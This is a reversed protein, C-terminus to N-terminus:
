YYYGTAYVRLRLNVSFTQTSNTVNTRNQTFVIQTQGGFSQKISVGSMLGNPPRGIIDITNSLDTITYVYTGNTPFRAATYNSEATAVTTFGFSSSSYGTGPNRAAFDNYFATAFNNYATSNTPTFTVTEKDGLYDSSAPAISVTGAIGSESDLQKYVARAVRGATNLRYLIANVHAIDANAQNINSEAQDVYPQLKEVFLDYDFNQVASSSQPPTLSFGSLYSDYTANWASAYSYTDAAKLDTIGFTSKVTTPISANINDYQSIDRLIQSLDSDSGVGAANIRDSLAKLKTALGDIYTNTISGWTSGDQNVTPHELDSYYSSTTPM